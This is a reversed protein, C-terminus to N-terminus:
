PNITISAFCNEAQEILDFGLGPEQSEYWEFAEQMEIVALNELILNYM